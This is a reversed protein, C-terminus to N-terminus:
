RGAGRAVSVAQELFSAYDRAIASWQFRRMVLERAAETRARSRDSLALRLGSQVEDPNETDVLVATNEFTWRTVPRDHTVIPLGTSLAEIYANSSPEDLSMHLFVDACRYLEPMQARDVTLRQYRGPLFERGLRDAQERLPGDGAVVLFADPCNAVAELGELVRKSPILASVMLVIKADQPLDFQERRGSGPCFVSPDVGNPILRSNWRTQNRDYYEPNTCVLGDCGFFRFESSRNQAPWDGNQTVYVHAPRTGGRGRRLLWNCFPYSCTLTVDFASPDFHKRLHWAFTIEEWCYEDRLVPLRPWKEFRERPTSPVHVFRYPEHARPQGSGMLTVEFGDIRSLERAVSELAVEAGRAVRHFGPIAFLVRYRRTLPELRREPM